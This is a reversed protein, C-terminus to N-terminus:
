KVITRLLWAFLLPLLLMMLGAIISFRNARHKEVGLFDTGKYAIYPMYFMMFFMPAFDVPILNKIIELLILFILNYIIYDNLRDIAGQSDAIEPYLSGLVYSTVHFTVYYCSFNIIAKMLSGLWTLLPDYVMPVFSSVALVVLLPLFTSSLLKGTPICSRKVEEWGNRPSVIVLIINTLIEM